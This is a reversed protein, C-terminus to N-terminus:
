ENTEPAQMEYSTLQFKPNTSVAAAIIEESLEAGDALKVYVTGAPQDILVDEVGELEM